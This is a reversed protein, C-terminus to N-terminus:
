PYRFAYTGMLQARVFTAVPALENNANQLRASEVRLTIPIHTSLFQVTVDGLLGRQAPRGIEVSPFPKGANGMARQSPREAISRVGHRWYGAGGSLRLSPRLWLEMEGRILDADPGVESGLPRGLQQYVENYRDRLYTYSDVRRYEVQLSAPRVLPLAGSATARWALQDPTVKRDAGDIQIDDVLLEGGLNLAGVRLKLGGFATLNDKNDESRGADNQTVVYIMVPNAFDLDLTRSGRSLLATEGLTLEIGPRPKWTLAHGVLTRYFRQSPTGSPLADTSTDLVVADLTAVIARAEFRRTAISAVIRDLPAGHASLSLSEEGAGLWAEQGRGVSLVLRAASATIFAESFDVVGSTRRLARARVHPDNRANTEGYAEALVLLREGNEFSARARLIAVAPPDGDAPDKVATWLPRVDGKSLSTARLTLAAGARLREHPELSEADAARRAADALDPAVAALSDEPMGTAPPTGDGFRLLLATLLDGACFPDSAAARLAGRIAGVLYPRHPSVRAEVCGVRELSALQVYAPDAFPLPLLSHQAQVGAPSVALLIAPVGAFLTGVRRRSICARFM